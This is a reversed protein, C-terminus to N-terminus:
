SVIIQNQQNSHKFFESVGQEQRLKVFDEVMEDVQFLAETEPLQGYKVKLSDYAKNIKLILTEKILDDIDKLQPCDELAFHKNM